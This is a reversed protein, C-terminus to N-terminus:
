PGLTPRKNFLYGRPGNWEKRRKLIWAQLKRGPVHHVKGNVTVEFTTELSPMPLAERVIVNEKVM